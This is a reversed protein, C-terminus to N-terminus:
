YRVLLPLGEEQLCVLHLILFGRRDCRVQLMEVLAVHVCLAFDGVRHVEIRSEVPRHRLPDIAWFTKVHRRPVM